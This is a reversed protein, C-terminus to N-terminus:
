DSPGPVQRQRLLAINSLPPFERRLLVPVRAPLSGM